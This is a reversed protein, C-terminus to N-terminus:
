QGNWEELEDLEEAAEDWDDIVDGDKGSEERKEIREIFSTQGMKMLMKRANADDPNLMLGKQFSYVSGDRDGIEKLTIGRNTWARGYTEDEDIASDFYTLALRYDQKLLSVLIGKLTLSAATRGGTEIAIDIEKEAEEYEKMVYLIESLLIHANKDDQKLRCARQAARKAMDAKGLEMLVRAKAKWLEPDSLHLVLAMDFKKAAEEFDKEKELLLGEYFLVDKRPIEEKGMLLKRAKSLEGSELLHLFRKEM